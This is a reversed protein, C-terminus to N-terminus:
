FNITFSVVHNLDYEGSNYKTYIKDILEILPINSKLMNKLEITKNDFGYKKLEDNNFIPLSLNKFKNRSSIIDMIGIDNKIIKNIIHQNELTFINKFDLYNEKNKKSILKVISEDLSLAFFEIDINESVYKKKDMLYNIEVSRGFDTIMFLYGLTPVYYTKGNIIYCFVTNENIKKYLVNGMHFDYHFIKLIKNLCLIGVLVQLILSYLLHFNIVEKLLKSCDADAYELILYKKEPIFDIREIFNPCVNNFILKNTKLYIKNEWTLKKFLNNNVYEDYKVKGAKKIIVSGCKDSIAKFVEGQNGSGIKEIDQKYILKKCESYNLLNKNKQVNLRFNLM